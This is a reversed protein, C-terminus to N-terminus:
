ANTKLRAVALEILVNIMSDSLTKGRTIAADKIKNFAELRKAESSLDTTALQAVIAITLDKFEGIILKMEATFVEKIFANFAALFKNFLSKIWEGFGM